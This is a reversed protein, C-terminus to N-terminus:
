LMGSSSGSGLIPARTSAGSPLRMTVPTTTEATAESRSDVAGAAVLSM